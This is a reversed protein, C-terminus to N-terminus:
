SGATGDPERSGAADAPPPHDGNRAAPGAPIFSATAVTAVTGVPAAVAAAAREAALEARRAAQRTVKAHRKVLAVWGVGALLTFLLWQGAYSLHPGPNQDPLPLPRPLSGDDPGLLEVYAPVLPYPVQEGIRAVDLRAVRTLVGTEPDQPGIWGRTQTERVRGTVTVPGTPPAPAEPPVGVAPPAPVWGRNVLLARGDALRLPTVVHLGPLSQLSRDNVFFQAALDFTGAVTVTRWEAEGIDDLTATPGLVDALPAPPLEAREAVARNAARREGHRDLQWLSLYIMVVMAALTAVTLVIWRPRRLFGYM